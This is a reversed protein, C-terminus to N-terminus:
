RYVGYKNLLNMLYLYQEFSVTPPVSHDSHYIYGGGAMAVELKTRVEEELEEKTGSMKTADINGMFALRRGYAQKLLRVDLGAKAEMPQLVQVGADILRPVLNRVDGDTHIFYTIGNAHLYDGLRRHEPFLVREYAQPSFMLGTNMGLDEALLIGDPKIGYTSALALTEIILSVHAHSMEALLGPDLAYDMLTASFGHMRWIAEHPGYVMLLLYKQRERLTQFTVAMDGWTPWQVFPQFYSVTNVRATEGFDATLRYNNKEWDARTKITHDLYGLAGSRGKWQKAVFGHKDERVTYSDTDELLREPLRLSTDMYLWDFDFDFYDGAAVDKPMGEEQWRGLTDEWFGDTKGIRDPEQFSLSVLVRERSTFDSM